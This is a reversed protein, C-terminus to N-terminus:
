VIKAIVSYNCMISIVSNESESRQTTRIVGGMDLDRCHAMVWPKRKAYMEKFWDINNVMHERSIEEWKADFEAAEIDEYWIIDNLKKVFVSYDERTVGYKIPVKNMIHWMCYRHRTTKFVSPEANLIGPDQDTIIYKPEKGGMAALFRTFGLKFSDADEHAVVAGCFTVSRKHHDAGTFPTFTM